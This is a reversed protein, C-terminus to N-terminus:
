RFLSFEGKKVENRGTFDGAPTSGSICNNFCKTSRNKESFHDFNRKVNKRAMARNAVNHLSKTIHSWHRDNQLPRIM